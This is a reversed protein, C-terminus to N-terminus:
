AQLQQKLEEEDVPHHEPAMRELAWASYGVFIGLFIFTGLAEQWENLEM